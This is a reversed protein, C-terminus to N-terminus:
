RSRRWSAALAAAEGKVEGVGAVAGGPEDHQEDAKHAHARDQADLSGIAARRPEHGAPWGATMM